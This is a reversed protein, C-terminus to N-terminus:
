LNNSVAGSEKEKARSGVRARAGRSRARGAGEHPTSSGSRRTPPWQPSPAPCPPPPRDCFGLLLAHHHRRRPAAMNWLVHTSHAASTNLSNFRKNTRQDGQNELTVTHIGDSTYRETRHTGCSPVLMVRRGGGRGGGRHTILM